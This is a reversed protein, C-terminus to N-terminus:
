AQNKEPAQNRYFIGRCFAILGVVFLIPPYFFITDLMLGLGFWLVAAAMMVSGGLVGARIGSREPSFLGPNQRRKEDEAARKKLIYRTFDADIEKQTRPQDAPLVDVPEEAVAATAKEAVMPAPASTQKAPATPELTTGCAPCFVGNISPNAFIDVRKGCACTIYRGM